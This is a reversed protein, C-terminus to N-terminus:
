TKKVKKRTLVRLPRTPLTQMMKREQDTAAATRPLREEKRRKEYKMRERFPLRPRMIIMMWLPCVVIAKFCSVQLFLYFFLCSCLSGISIENWLPNMKPLVRIFEQYALWYRQILKAMWGLVNSVNGRFNISFGHNSLNPGMTCEWHGDHDYKWIGARDLQSEAAELKSWSLCATRSLFKVAEMISVGSSAGPWPSRDTMEQWGKM